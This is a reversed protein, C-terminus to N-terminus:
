SRQPQLTDIALEVRYNKRTFSQRCPQHVRTSSKKSKLNNKKNPDSQLKLGQKPYIQDTM